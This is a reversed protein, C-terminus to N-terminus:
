QMCAKENVHKDLLDKRRYIKHCNPCSLPVSESIKSSIVKSAFRPSQRVTRAISRSSRTVLPSTEPVDEDVLKRKMSTTPEEKELIPELTKTARRVSRTIRPTADSLEETVVKRTSQVKPNKKQITPTSDSVSDVKRFVRKPVDPSSDPKRASRKGTTSSQKKIISGYTRKTTDTNEKDKRVISALQDLELSARLENSFGIESEDLGVVVRDPSVHTMPPLGALSSIDVFANRRHAKRQQVVEPSSDMFTLDPDFRLESISAELVSRRAPKPSNSQDFKPTQRASMFKPSTMLEERPFLMVTDEQDALIYPLLFPSVLM